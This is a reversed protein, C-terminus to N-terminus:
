KWRPERQDIRSAMEQRRLKVSLAEKAAAKFKLAVRQGDLLELVDGNQRLGNVRGLETLFNGEITSIEEDACAMRTTGIGKLALKGDTFEMGGFMRNCGAHGTFRTKENNIEIFAKSASIPKGDIHTL